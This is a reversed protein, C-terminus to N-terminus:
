AVSEMNQTHHIHCRGTTTLDHGLWTRHIHHPIDSMSAALLLTYPHQLIDYITANIRYSIDSPSCCVVTIIWNWCMEVLLQCLGEPRYTRCKFLLLQINSMAHCKRCCHTIWHKGLNSSDHLQSSSRGLPRQVSSYIGEASSNKVTVYSQQFISIKPCRHVM